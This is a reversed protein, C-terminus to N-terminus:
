KELYKKRQQTNGFQLAMRYKAVTRRACTFGKEKLLKSIKEDSLPHQKDEEKIMREIADRITQASIDEGEESVYKATFFARLPFIGRPSNIYKNGVTRAITSEHLNLEESLTKMTLPKLQGDPQTFFEYQKDALSQAIREITSYRQQLNRVLWKASFLHRKIFQKTELLVNEDNLLNLYKRNVKLAPARDRDVEVILQDNEQRITVDPFISQVPHRSYHMGPHIDLKVIMEIAEQIEDYSYKSEKQIQPIQNHLLQDYHDKILVYALTNKKKLCSLQILFSEQISFAGIGYPDFQQIEKLVALVSEESFQHLICIENVPTSLFGNEDMYGILVEAIELEEETEFIEHSEKILHEYLTSKACISQELYTQKKEEESSRQIATEDANFHDRYDEDLRTLISLDKEDITIDKESDDVKQFPDFDDGSGLGEENEIELLPNSAVQEEIFPELELLPLQLLHIAQQMHASMMLGQTLGAKTQIKLAASPISNSSTM